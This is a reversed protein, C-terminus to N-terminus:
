LPKTANAEITVMLDSASWILKGYRESSVHREQVYVERRDALPNSLLKSCDIRIENFAIHRGHQSLGGMSGAGVLSLERMESQMSMKETWVLGEHTHGYLLMSCGNGFLKNRVQNSNVLDAFLEPQRGHYSALNHHCVAIRVAPANPSVSDAPVPKRRCNMLCKGINALHKEDIFGSTFRVMADLINARDIESLNDLAMLRKLECTIGRYAKSLIDQIKEQGGQLAKSNEFLGVELGGNTASNLLLVEVGGRPYYLAKPGNIANAYETLSSANLARWVSDQIDQLPGDNWAVDHNGPVLLVQKRWDPDGGEIHPQVLWTQENKNRAGRLEDLFEACEAFEEDTAESSVDGCIVILHPLEQKPRHRLEEIYEYAIHRGDRYIGYTGFHLDSIQHIIFDSYGQKRSSVAAKDVGYSSKVLVKLADPDYGIGGKKKVYESLLTSTCTLETGKILTILGWEVLSEMAKDGESALHKANPSKSLDSCVLSLLAQETDLLSAYISAHVQRLDAPLISDKIVHEKGRPKLNKEALDEAWKRLWQVEAPLPGVLDGYGGESLWPIDEDNLFKEKRDISIPKLRNRKGAALSELAGGACRAKEYFAPVDAVVIQINPNINQAVSIADILGKAKESQGMFIGAHPEDILFITKRDIDALARSVDMVDKLQEHELAKGISVFASEVQALTVYISRTGAKKAHRGIKFLFSTKGSRRPACVLYRYSVMAKDIMDQDDILYDKDERIAGGIIARRNM